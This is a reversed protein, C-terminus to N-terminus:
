FISEGQQINSSQVLLGGINLLPFTSADSADAYTGIELLFFWAYGVTKGVNCEMNIMCAEDSLIDLSRQMARWASALSVIDDAYALVNM